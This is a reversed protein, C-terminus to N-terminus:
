PANGEQPGDDPDDTFVFRRYGLSIVILTLALGVLSAVRYLDSLNGLDYLFVKGCTLLLLTLSAYRLARSKRAVGITALVLAYAAWAISLTLDRAPMRDTPITLNPGTAYFDFVMLNLWLFVLVFTMFGFLGGVLPGGFLTPEWSRRRPGEVKALLAYAAGFAVAPVLYTYSIWNILRLTSRLEYDFVFPNLALRVFVLLGLGLATYKLGVHDYRRFLACFVAAELAWGITLWQEELQMPIALTILAAASGVTWVTASLRVAEPPPVRRVLNTAVLALVALVLPLAGIFRDGFVHVFDFYLPLLFLLPAAGAARWAGHREGLRRFLLPAAIAVCVSVLSVAMAPAGREELLLAVGASVATAAFLSRGLGSRAAAFAALLFLLGRGVHLPVDPLRPGPMVLTFAFACAVVLAVLDASQRVAPAKPVLGAVQALAALLVLAGLRTTATFPLAGGEIAIAAAVAAVCGITLMVRAGEGRRASILVALAYSAGLLALRPSASASTGLLSAAVALMVAAGAALFATHRTAPQPFRLYVAVNPLACAFSIAALAWGQTASLHGAFSALLSAQTGLAGLSAARGDRRGIWACAAAIAILQLATAGLNETFNAQLSLMVVLATGVGASLLQLIRWKEPENQREALWAPLVAFLLLFAVLVGAGIFRTDGDMRLFLWAFQYLATAGLAFYALGRWGRRVDLAIMAGDLVLLYAFLPIPRDSGTSLAIPTLFGGVLGLLATSYSRRKEAIVVCAVTTAAMLIGAVLPPYLEYLGRGAWAAVYLLGIGAGSLWSAAVEYRGRLRLEAVGLCAIGAAMGLAFRVPPPILGREISYQFFYFGALLLIVSGVAALGKVGIWEEWSIPESPSPEPPASGAGGGGPPGGGASSPGTPDSSAPFAPAYPSSPASAAKAPAANVSSSAPAASAAGLNTQSQAAQIPAGPTSASPTAANAPASEAALAPESPAEASPEYATAGVNPRDSAPPLQAAGAGHADAADAPSSPDVPAYAGAPLPTQWRQDVSAQMPTGIAPHAAASAARSAWAELELLRAHLRQNQGGLEILGHQNQLIGQELEMLRRRVESLRSVSVVLGVLLAVPLLCAVAGVLVAIPEM